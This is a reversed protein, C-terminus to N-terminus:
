EKYLASSRQGNMHMGEDAYKRVSCKSCLLRTSPKLQSKPPLKWGVRCFWNCCHLNTCNTLGSRLNNDQFGIQLMDGDCLLSLLDEKRHMKDGLGIRIETPSAGPLLPAFTAHIAHEKMLGMTCNVFALLTCKTWAMTLLCTVCEHVCHKIVRHTKTRIVKSCGNM